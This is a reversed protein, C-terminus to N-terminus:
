NIGVIQHAAHTGVGVAEELDEARQVFPGCELGVQPDAVVAAWPVTPHAEGRDVGGETNM